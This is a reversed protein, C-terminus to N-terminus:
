QPQLEYRITSSSFSKIADAVQEPYSMPLMHGAEDMTLLKANPLQTSLDAGVAYPVLKDKRGQIVLASTSISSPDLSSPKIQLMEANMTALSGKMLLTSRLANMWRDPVQDNFRSTAMTKTMIKGIIPTRMFMSAGPPNTPRKELRMSPGVAAMLVIFPTDKHRAARTTQVTGGGFSWGVLAPHGLGMVTILEDLEQGNVQMTHPVDPTRRSSHGYGVRDYWVVHFGRAVLADVLEIWDGASGPLGHTLVITQGTGKEYTNVSVGSPLKIIKGPPPPTPRPLFQGVVMLVVLALFLIGIFKIIKMIALM